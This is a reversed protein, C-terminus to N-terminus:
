GEDEAGGCVTLGLAGAAERSQASAVGTEGAAQQMGARDERSAAAQMREAADVEAELAGILRNIDARQDDPRELRKLKQNQERAIPVARELFLAIQLPDNPDQPAAVLSIQREADSCILDAQEAFSQKGNKDDDCGPFGLVVLLAVCAAIRHM